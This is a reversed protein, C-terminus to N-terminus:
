SSAADPEDKTLSESSTAGAINVGEARKRWYEETQDAQAKAVRSQLAEFPERSKRIPKHETAVAGAIPAPVVLGMRVQYLEIQAKLYEMENELLLCKGQEHASRADSLQGASEAEILRARSAAVESKLQDNYAVLIQNKEHLDV